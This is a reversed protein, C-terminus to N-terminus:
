SVIMNNYFIDIVGIFNEATKKGYNNGNDL